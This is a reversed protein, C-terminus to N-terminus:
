HKKDQRLWSYIVSHHEAMKGEIRM